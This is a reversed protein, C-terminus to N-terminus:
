QAKVERSNLLHLKSGDESIELTLYTTTRGNGYDALITRKKPDFSKLDCNLIRNTDNGSIHKIDDESFDNRQLPLWGFQFWKWIKDKTRVLLGQETPIPMVILDGVVFISPSPDDAWDAFYVYKDDNSSKYSAKYLFGIDSNRCETGDIRIIGGNSLPIEKHTQRLSKSCGSLGGSLVLALCLILKPKM